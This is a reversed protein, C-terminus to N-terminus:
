PLIMAVPLQSAVIRIQCTSVPTVTAEPMACLAIAVSVPWLSTIEAKRKVGLPSRSILLLQSPVSRTQCTSTYGNTNSNLKRM